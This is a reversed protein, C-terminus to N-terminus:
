EHIKDCNHGWLYIKKWHIKKLKYNKRLWQQQAEAKVRLWCTVDVWLADLKKLSGKNERSNKPFEEAKDYVKLM